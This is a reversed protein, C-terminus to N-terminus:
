RRARAPAPRARRTTCLHCSTESCSRWTSPTGEPACSAPCDAIAAPSPRRRHGVAYVTPPGPNSPKPGGEMPTDTCLRALEVRWGPQRRHLRQRRHLPHRRLLAARRAHRWLSSHVSEATSGTGHAVFRVVGAHRPACCSLLCSVLRPIMAASARCSRIAARAHCAVLTRM